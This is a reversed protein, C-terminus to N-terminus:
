VDVGFVQETWIGTRDLHRNQRFAQETWMDCSMKRFGIFYSDLFILIDHSLIFFDHNQSKVGNKRWM